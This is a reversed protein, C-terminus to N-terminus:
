DTIPPESSFKHIYTYAREWPLYPFYEPPRLNHNGSAIHAVLGETLVTRTYTWSSYKETYAKEMALLMQSEKLWGNYDFSWTGNSAYYHSGPQGAAPEIRILQYGQGIHLSLFQHALIHCAGSAFFAKDPRQWALFVDAKEQSTRHFEFNPTYM